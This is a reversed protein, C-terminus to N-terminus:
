KMNYIHLHKSIYLFPNDVVVWLLVYSLTNGTDPITWLTSSFFSFPSFADSKVRSCFSQGRDRRRSGQCNRRPLREKMRPVEEVGPHISPPPSPLIMCLRPLLWPPSSSPPSSFIVILFPLLFPAFFHLAHFHSIANKPGNEGFFSFFKKWTKSTYRKHRKKSLMLLIKHWIPTPPIAYGVEADPRDRKTSNSMTLAARSSFLYRRLQPVLPHEARSVVVCCGFIDGDLCRRMWVIKSGASFFAPRPTSITTRERTTSIPVVEQDKIKVLLIM